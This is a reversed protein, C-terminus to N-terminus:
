LERNVPDVGEFYAQAKQWVKEAVLHGLKRGALDGSKFHLGGYRRSMGAQNAASTFTPWYLTIRQKPTLGTEIGSSGAPFTVSNQFRDSRTWHRLICAAAASFASHGSPYEPFPPTPFYTPQYPIWDIADMTVTGKGPGGWCKIHRGRLAYPIATAPRVSDVKRKLSWAAIGADSVANTLVFMLKVDDDLTNHDRLSVFRAFLCWHGPPLESNPGDTWYESIMKQKDTLSGSIRVLEQLQKLYQKTGYKLVGARTLVTSQETEYPGAFPTVKFWQAGLFPQALLPNHSGRGYLLPQFRNPDVVSTPDIPIGTSPNIASYGTYDSYPIRSESMEGDQNSGDHQHAELVVHCTLRGIGAAQQPNVSHDQPSYGLTERMFRDLLDRHQPFLEGLAAYAAYSISLEKNAVTREAAPRRLQSGFHTGLAVNDYPAWADYICTHLIALVRAVMPPGMSTIRVMQLALRNWKLVVSEDASDAAISSPFAYVIILALVIGLSRKKHM